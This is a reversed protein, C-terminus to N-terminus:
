TTPVIAVVRRSHQDVIVLENRVLVYRDGWYGNMVQTIEPPIDKLEVEQPVTSGIMMEFSAKELKPPDSQHAVISKIKQLQDANLRLATSSQKIAAPRGEDSGAPDHKGVTSEAARQAPAGRSATTDPATAPNAGGKPTGVQNPTVFPWAIIGAAIAVAILAGGVFVRRTGWVYDRDGDAM